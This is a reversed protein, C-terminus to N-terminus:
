VLENDYSLRLSSWQSKVASDFGENISQKDPVSATKDWSEVETPVNVVNM